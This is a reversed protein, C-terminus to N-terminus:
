EARLASFPQRRMKRVFPYKKRVWYQACLACCVFLLMNLCPFYIKGYVYKYLFCFFFLKGYINLIIKNSNNRFAKLYIFISYQTLSHIFTISHTSSTPATIFTPINTKNFQFVSKRWEFKYHTTLKEEIVRKYGDDDNRM